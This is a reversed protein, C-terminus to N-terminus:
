MAWMLVVALHTLMHVLMWVKARYLAIILLEYYQM